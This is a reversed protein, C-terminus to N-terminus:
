EEGAHTTPAPHHALSEIEKAILGAYYDWSGDVPERLWAVIAAREAAAGTDAWHAALEITTQREIIARELEAVRAEAATARALALAVDIQKLAHDGNNALEANVALLEDRERLAESLLAPVAALLDGNAEHEEHTTPHRSDRHPYRAITFPKRGDEHRMNIVSQIQRTSKDNFWPGPTAVRLLAAARTYWPESPM